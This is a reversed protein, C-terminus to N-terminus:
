NLVTNGPCRVAYGIYDYYHNDSPPDPPCDTAIHEIGIYYIGNSGMQCSCDAFTLCPFIFISLLSIIFLSKRFLLM